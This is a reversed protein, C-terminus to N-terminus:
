IEKENKPGSIEVCVDIQDQHVRVFGSEIDLRTEKEGEAYDITGAKLHAILSAHGPLVTFLGEEGPLTIKEITTRCLLGSPAVIVLQM